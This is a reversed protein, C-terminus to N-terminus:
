RLRGSGSFSGYMLEEQGVPSRKIFEFVKVNIGVHYNDKDKKELILKKILIM